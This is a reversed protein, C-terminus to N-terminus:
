QTLRKKLFKYIGPLASKPLAHGGNLTKFAVPVGARRLANRLAKSEKVPVIPDNTGHVIYAPPDDSTAHKVPSAEKVLEVWNQYDPRHRNQLIDPISHGILQSSTSTPSGEFKGYTFINSPGFVDVFAQIRSSQNRNGGVFGELEPVDSTTGLLAALHGGSSVGFAAFRNPRLNYKAANARLWRVAAKCDHLQAPFAANQTWRYNVSAVAIGRSLLPKVFRAVESKDGVLWGGSHLYIVVPYPGCCKKPIYLDLKQRWHINAYPLDAYTPRPAASAHSGVIFCAVAALSVLRRFAAGAPHIPSMRGHIFSRCRAIGRQQKM